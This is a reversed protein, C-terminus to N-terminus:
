KDIVPFIVCASNSTSDEPVSAVTTQKLAVAQMVATDKIPHPVSVSHGHPRVPFGATSTTIMTANHHPVNLAVEQQAAIVAATLVAAVAVAAAVM